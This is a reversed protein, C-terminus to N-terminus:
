EVNILTTDKSKNYWKDQNYVRYKVVLRRKIIRLEKKDDNMVIHIAIKGEDLNADMQRNFNYHFHQHGHERIGGVGQSEWWVNRLKPSYSKGENGDIGIGKDTFGGPALYVEAIFDYENELGLPKLIKEELSLRTETNRDINPNTQKSKRNKWVSYITLIQEDTLSKVIVGNEVVESGFDSHIDKDYDPSTIIDLVQKQSMQTSSVWIPKGPVNERDFHTMNWKVYQVVHEKAVYFKTWKAVNWDERVGCMRGMLGQITSLVSASRDYIM